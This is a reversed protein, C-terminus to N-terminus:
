PSSAWSRPKDWTSCDLVINWSRPQDLLKKPAWNSHALGCSVTTQPLDSKTDFTLRLTFDIDKLHLDIAVFLNDLLQATSLDPTGTAFGSTELTAELRLSQLGYNPRLMRPFNANCFRFFMATNAATVTLHDLKGGLFVPMDTWDQIDLQLQRCQTPIRLQIAPFDLRPGLRLQSCPPVPVYGFRTKWQGKYGRVWVATWPIAEHEFQVGHLQLERDQTPNPDPNKFDRGLVDFTVRRHDGDTALHKRTISLLRFAPSSLLRAQIEKNPADPALGNEQVFPLAGKTAADCRNLYSLHLSVIRPHIMPKTTRGWVFLPANPIEVKTTHSRDSLLHGCIVSNTALFCQHDTSPLFTGILMVLNAYLRTALSSPSIGKEKRQKKEM